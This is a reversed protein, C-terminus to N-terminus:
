QRTMAWFTKSAWGELRGWREGGQVAGFAGPRAASAKCGENHMAGVQRQVGDMPSHFQLRWNAGLMKEPVHVGHVGRFVPIRLERLQGTANDTKRHASDGTRADTLDYHAGTLGATKGPANGCGLKKAFTERKKGPLIAGHANWRNQWRRAAELGTARGSVCSLIEGPGKREAERSMGLFNFRVVM